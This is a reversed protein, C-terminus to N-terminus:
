EMQPRKRWWGGAMRHARTRTGSQFGCSWADARLEGVAARCVPAEGARRRAMPLGRERGHHRALCKLTGPAGSPRSPSLEAPAQEVAVLRAISDARDPALAAGRERDMQEGVADSRTELVDAMSACFVRHREGAREAQRNWGLPERWHAEGFFRRPADKGWIPFGRKGQESFGHLPSAALERAYCNDCAPSVEVCGWWTQFTHHAWSIGTQKAM